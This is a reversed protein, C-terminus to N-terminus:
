VEKESPPPSLSLKTTPEKKKPQPQPQLSVTQNNSIANKRQRSCRCCCCSKPQQINRRRRCSRSPSVTQNNSIKEEWEPLSLCGCNPRQNNAIEEATVITLRDPQQTHRKQQHHCRLLERITPKKKRRSRRSTKPQLHPSVLQNNSRNDKESIIAATIQKKQNSKNGKQHESPIYKM